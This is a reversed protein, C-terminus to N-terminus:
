PRPAEAPDTLPEVPRQRMTPGGHPLSLLEAIAQEPTTWVEIPQGRWDAHFKEQRLRHPKDHTTRGPTKVERLLTWGRFGVALDPEGEKGVIAFVTGGIGEVAKVIGPQAADARRPRFRM